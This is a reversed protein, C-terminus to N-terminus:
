TAVEDLYSEIEYLTDSLDINEICLYTTRSNVELDSFLSMYRETLFRITASDLEKKREIIIEAPAYMFVNLDPERIFRLFFRAM